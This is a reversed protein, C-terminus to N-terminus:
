SVASTRVPFDFHAHSSGVSAEVTTKLLGSDISVKKIM